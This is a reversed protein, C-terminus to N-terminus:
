VGGRWGGHGAIGGEGIEEEEGDSMKEVRLISRRREAAKRKGGRDWKM